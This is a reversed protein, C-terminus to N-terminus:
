SRCTAPGTSHLLVADSKQISHLAFPEVPSPSTAMVLNAGCFIWLVYMSSIQNRLVKGRFCSAGGSANQPLIDAKWTWSGASLDPSTFVALTTREHQPGLPFRVENQKQLLRLRTDPRLPLARVEHCVHVVPRLSGLARDPDRPRRTHRGPQRDAAARQMNSRLITTAPASAAAALAHCLLLLVRPLMATVASQTGAGGFVGDGLSGQPRRGLWGHLGPRSLTFHRNATLRFYTPWSIKGALWSPAAEGLFLVKM